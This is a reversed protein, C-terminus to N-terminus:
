ARAQAHLAPGIEVGDGSRACRVHSSPPQKTFQWGYSIIGKAHASRSCLVHANFDFNIGHKFIYTEIHLRASVADEPWEFYAHVDRERMGWGVLWLWKSAMAHLAYNVQDRYGYFLSHKTGSYVDQEMM